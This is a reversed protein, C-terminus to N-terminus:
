VLYHVFQLEKQRLILLWAVPLMLSLMWQIVFKLTQMELDRLIIFEQETSEAIKAMVEVSRVPYKGATEQFCLLVQETMFLMPLMPFKRERLVYITIMSELMETATIVRALCVVSLLLSKQIAPLQEFPIEVGYRWSWDNYRRM